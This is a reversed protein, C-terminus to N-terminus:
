HRGSRSRRAVVFLALGTAFLGIVGAVGFGRPGGPGTDALEDAASVGDTGGDSDTGM